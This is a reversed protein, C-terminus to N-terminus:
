FTLVPTKPKRTTGMLVIYIRARARARARAPQARAFQTRGDRTGVLKYSQKLM